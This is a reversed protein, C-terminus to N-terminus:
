GGFGEPYPNVYASTVFTAANEPYQAGSPTFSSPLVTDSYESLCTKDVYYTDEHVLNFDMGDEILVVALAKFSIPAAPSFEYLRPEAGEAGQYKEIQFRTVEIWDGNLTQAYLAYLGFPWGRYNVFRMQLTILPCDVVPKDLYFPTGFRGGCSGYEGLTGTLVSANDKWHYDAFVAAQMREEADASGAEAAKKYWDYAKEFNREGASGKDYITAITLYVDSNGADAARLFWSLAQGFDRSVGANYNGRYYTNAVDTMAAADGSEAKQKLQEFEEASSVAAFAPTVGLPILLCLALLFSLIKKM